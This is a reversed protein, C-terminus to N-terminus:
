FLSKQHLIMNKKTFSITKRLLYYIKLFCQFFPRKHPKLSFYIYQRLILICAYSYTIQAIKSFSFITSIFFTNKQSEEVLLYFYSFFVNFFDSKLCFKKKIWIAYIISTFPPKTYFATLKGLFTSFCTM